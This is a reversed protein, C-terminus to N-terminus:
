KSKSVRSYSFLMNGEYVAFEPLDFETTIIEYMSTSLTTYQNKSDSNMSPVFTEVPTPNSSSIDLSGGWNTNLDLDHYLVSRKGEHFIKSPEYDPTGIISNIQSIKPSSNGSARSDLSLYSNPINDSQLNDDSGSIASTYHVSNM